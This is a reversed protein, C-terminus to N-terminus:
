SKRAFWQKMALIFNPAGSGFAMLLQVLSWLRNAWRESTTATRNDFANAIWALLLAAVHAAGATRIDLADFGLARLGGNGAFMLAQVAVWPTMPFHEPDHKEEALLGLLSGVFAGCQLYAATMSNPDVYGGLGAAAALTLHVLAWWVGGGRAGSIITLASALLAVCVAAWHCGHIFWPEIVM